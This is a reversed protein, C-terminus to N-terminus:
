AMVSYPLTMSAAVQAVSSASSTLLQFHSTHLSFNSTLLSFHSTINISFPCHFIFLTFRVLEIVHNMLISTKIIM